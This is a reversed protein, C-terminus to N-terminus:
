KYNLQNLKLALEQAKSLAEIDEKAPTNNTQLSLVTGVPEANIRRFIINARKIAPESSGDGGGTIILVGNKKKLKFDTEKRISRAVFFCQLRSAFSLFEGTLESFYLPSAIIVNDVENLLKYIEQMEDDICCGANTWCYRCDMCPSIDDYYAHVIRVEGDLYELMENVLTMSDGNKRPSGSIILTKIPM